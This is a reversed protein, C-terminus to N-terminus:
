GDSRALGSDELASSLARESIAAGSEGSFDAFGVTGIGVVAVPANAMHKWDKDSNSANLQLFGVHM